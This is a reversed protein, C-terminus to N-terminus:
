SGWIRSIILVKIWSFRRVALRATRLAFL